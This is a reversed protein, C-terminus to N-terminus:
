CQLCTERYTDHNGQASAQRRAVSRQPVIRAFLSEQIADCLTERRGFRKSWDEKRAVCSRTGENLESVAEHKKGNGSKDEEEPM